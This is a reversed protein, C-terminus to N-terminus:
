MFLLAITCWLLWQVGGIFHGVCLCLTHIFYFCLYTSNLFFLFYFHLNLKSTLTCFLAWFCLYLKSAMIYFTYCFCLTLKSALTYLKTHHLTSPADTKLTSCALCSFLTNFSFFLFSSFCLIYLFSELLWDELHPFLLFVVITPTFSIPIGQLSTIDLRKFFLWTHIWLM